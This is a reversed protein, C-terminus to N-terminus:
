LKNFIKEPALDFDIALSKIINDDKNLKLLRKLNNM